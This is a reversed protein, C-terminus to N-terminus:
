IILARIKILFLDSNKTENIPSSEVNTLSNSSFLGAQKSETSVQTFSPLDPITKILGGISESVGSKIVNFIRWEDKFRVETKMPHVNVDVQDPPIVLNIM